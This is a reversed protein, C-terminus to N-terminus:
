KNKYNYYFMQILWITNIIVLFAGGVFSFLCDVSRYFYLNWFGWAAFFFTPITSVGMVKKDNHLKIVNKILLIGGIFEFIGNIVDTTM